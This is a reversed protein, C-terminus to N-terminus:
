HLRGESAVAVPAKVPLLFDLKDIVSKLAVPHAKRFAAPKIQERNTGRFALVHELYDTFSPHKKARADDWDAGHDSGFVVSMHPAFLAAQTFDDYYDFIHLSRYFTESPLDKGEFTGIEDNEFFLEWSLDKVWDTLFTEELSLLNITGHDVPDDSFDSIELRSKKKPPKEGLGSHRAHVWRFQIGNAAEYFSRMDDPLPHGLTKEVKAIVAPKVPPAVVYQLITIEDTHTIEQVMARFRDVYDSGFAEGLDSKKAAVEPSNRQESKKGESAAVEQYGKALKGTILKAAEAQAVEASAFSKEQSQGATGIRGWALHLHNGDSRVQWFKSSAGEILELRRLSM